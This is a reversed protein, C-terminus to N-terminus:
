GDAKELYLTTRGANGTEKVVMKAKFPFWDREWATVLQTLINGGGCHRLELEGGPIRAIEVVAYISSGPTDEFKSLNFHFDRVVFTEGALDQLRPLKQPAFVEDFSKGERIRQRIARATVEPDGVEILTGAPLEGEIAAYAAAVLQPTPTIRAASRPEDDQTALEENKKAAQENAM